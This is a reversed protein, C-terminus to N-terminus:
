LIGFMELFCQLMRKTANGVTDMREKAEPKKLLHFEVERTIVPEKGPLSSPIGKRM